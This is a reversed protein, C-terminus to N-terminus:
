EFKQVLFVKKYTPSSISIMYIGNALDKLDFRTNIDQGASTLIQEELKVGLLNYLVISFRNGTLIRGEVQVVGDTPNPFISFKNDFDAESTATSCDIDVSNSTVSCNDLSVVVYYTGNGNKSCLIFPETSIETGNFYWNYKYKPNNYNTVSITDHKLTLQPQPLPSVSITLTDSNVISTTLCNASSTMECFIKSGNTLSSSKYSSGTGVQSGNIFWRFAPNFGGNSATATFIVEECTFVSTASANVTVSPTLLPNVAISKFNSTAVSQTLCQASSIMICYVLNSGDSFANTTFSSENVSQLVDNLYWQYEPDSGGNVPTATFTVNQGACVSNASSIISVSPTLYPNVIITLINSAAKVTDPCLANSTVVAYITAGNTLSSTTFQNENGEQVQDNVYWEYVPGEGGNVPSATFTVSEGECVTIATSSIKLSVPLVPNVTIVIESSTDTEFQLCQSDSTLICRVRTNNELVTTSFTDSTVNEILEDNVFWQFLPNEGGNVPTAIFTVEEGQCINLASGVVSVEPVLLESVKVSIVGSTDTVNTYCEESTTLVCYVYSDENFDPSNFIYSSETQLVDDIYWQYTPSHGGNQVTATFIANNGECVPNESIDVFVSPTLNQNVTIIITDSFATDPYPCIEDSIIAAYVMDGDSLSDTTFVSDGAEQMEDNVFWRYEPNTGGNFATANFIISDGECIYVESAEIKVSVPIIPNVTIVRVNSTDTETLLCLANSTMVCKVRNNDDLDTISFTDSTGSVILEDNVFWEFVPNEGGNLATAIFTIEEGQCIDLSSAIIYVYPIKLEIVPIEIPLSTIVCGSPYTVRVTFTTTDAPSVTISDSTQFNSWLFTCGTCSPVSLTIEEGQCIPLAVSAQIELDGISSYKITRIDKYSDDCLSSGTIYLNDCRDVIVAAAVDPGETGCDYDQSWNISGDNNFNVIHIDGLENYGTVFFDPENNLNSLSIGVPFDDNEDNSHYSFQYLLDNSNSVKVVYYSHYNLYRDAVAYVNKNKDIQIDIGKIEGNNFIIWRGSSMANQGHSFKCLYLKNPTSVGLDHATSLTYINGVNDVVLKNLVGEAYYQINAEWSNYKYLISGDEMDLEYLDLPDTYSNSGGTIVNGFSNIKVLTIRETNQYNKNWLLSGTQDYKITFGYDVNGGFNSPKYTGVVYVNKYVDVEVDYGIDDRTVSPNYIRVWQQEGQSNYKITVCDLGSNGGKSQGVVYVDGAADVKVANPEDHGNGPGNYRQSWLVEGASNYKIVIWDKLTTSDSVGAVFVNGNIDVAILKGYDDALPGNWRTDWELAPQSFISNVSFISLLTFLIFIKM